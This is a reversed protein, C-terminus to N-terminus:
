PISQHKRSKPLFLLNHSFKLIYTSSKKRKILNIYRRALCSLSFSTNLVCATRIVATISPTQVESDRQREQTKEKSIGTNMIISQKCKKNSTAYCRLKVNCLMEIQFLLKTYTLLDSRKRKNAKEDINEGERARVWKCSTVNSKEGQKLKGTKEGWQFYEFM